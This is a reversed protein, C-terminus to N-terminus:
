NKFDIPAKMTHFAGAIKILILKLYGHMSVGRMEFHANLKPEPVSIEVIAKIKQEYPWLDHGISLM